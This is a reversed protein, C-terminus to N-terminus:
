LEKITTPIGYNTLLDCLKDAGLDNLKYSAMDVLEIGTAEAPALASVNITLNHAKRYAKREMRIVDRLYILASKVSPFNYTENTKTYTVQVM